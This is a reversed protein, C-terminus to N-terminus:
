HTWYIDEPDGTAEGSLSFDDIMAALSQQIVDGLRTTRAYTEQFDAEIMSAAEIVYM